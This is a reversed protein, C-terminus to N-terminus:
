LNFEKEIAKFFEIRQSNIHELSYIGESILKKQKQAMEMRKTPNEILKSIAEFWKDNSTTFYGNDFKNFDGVNSSICVNGYVGYELMKLYSKSKNFESKDDLPALGIDFYSPISLFENFNQTSPLVYARDYIKLNFDNFYEAQSCFLFATNKYTKLIKKVPEIITQLDNRHGTGGQFGFTIVNEDLEKRKNIYYKNSLDVANNFWRYKEIPTNSEIALQNALYETTCHNYHSIQLIERVYEKPDFKQNEYLHKYAMKNHKEVKFINDDLEHIIIKGMEKLKKIITITFPDDVRAFVIVNYPQFYEYGKIESRHVIDIDFYKRLHYYPINIRYNGCAKDDARIALIKM